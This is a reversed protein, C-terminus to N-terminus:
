RLHLKRDMLIRLGRKHWFLHRQAIILLSQNHIKKANDLIVRTRDFSIQSFAMNLLLGLSIAIIKKM